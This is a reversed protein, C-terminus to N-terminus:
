GRIEPVRHHLCESLSIYPGCDSGIWSVGKVRGSCRPHNCLCSRLRHYVCICMNFWMIIVFWSIQGVVIGNTIRTAAYEAIDRFLLWILGHSFGSNKDETPKSRFVFRSAGFSDSICPCHCRCFRNDSHIRSCCCCAFQFFLFHSFFLWPPILLYDRSDM